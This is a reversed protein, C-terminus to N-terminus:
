EIHSEDLNNLNSAGLEYKEYVENIESAEITGDNNSDILRFAETTSWGKHSFLTQKLSELKKQSLLFSKLLRLFMFNM